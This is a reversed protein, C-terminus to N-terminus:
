QFIFSYIPRYRERQQPAVSLYKNASNSALCIRLRDNSPFSSVISLVFLAIALFTRCSHRVFKVFQRQLGRATVTRLESKLSALGSFDIRLTSTHTRTQVCTIAGSARFGLPLSPGVATKTKEAQKGISIHSSLSKQNEKQCFAIIPCILTM